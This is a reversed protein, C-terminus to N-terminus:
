RRDYGGTAAGALFGPVPATEQPVIGRKHTPHGTCRKGKGDDDAGQSRGQEYKALGRAGLPVHPDFEGPGNTAALHRVTARTTVPIGARETARGGRRRAAMSARVLRKGRRRDNNRGAQFPVHSDQM